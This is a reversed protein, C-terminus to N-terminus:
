PAEFNAVFKNTDLNDVQLSNRHWTVNRHYKLFRTGKDCTHNWL